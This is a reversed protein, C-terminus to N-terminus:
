SCFPVNFLFCAYHAAPVGGYIHEYVRYYTYAVMLALSAGLLIGLAVMGWETGAFAGGVRNSVAAALLCSRLSDSHNSKWLLLSLTM